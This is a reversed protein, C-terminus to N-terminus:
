PAPPTLGRQLSNLNFRFIDAYTPLDPSIGDAILPATRAGLEAALNEVGKDSEYAETFFCAPAGARMRRLLQAMRATDGESERAIGYVALPRFGFEACWHCFAAHGTVLTRQSEPIRAIVLRAKRSLEDMSAAYRAYRRRYEAEHASDLRVLHRLLERAARKMRAPSNWWHPDAVESDPLCVDPLAAGLEVCETGSGIAQKLDALYPETGKGCALLLRAEGARAVDAASPAFEHLDGSGPFLDVVIVQEGGLSKAMEGLLPHLVAVKLQASAALATLLFM